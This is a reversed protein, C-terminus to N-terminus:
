NFNDLSLISDVLNNKSDIGYGSITEIVEDTKKNVIECHHSWVKDFEDYYMNIDLLESETLEVEYIDEDFDAPKNGTGDWMGPNMNRLFEDAIEKAKIDRSNTKM